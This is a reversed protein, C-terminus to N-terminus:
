ARARSPMSASIGRWNHSRPGRRRWLTIVFGDCAGTLGSVDIWESRMGSHLCLHRVLAALSMAGLRGTLWHGLRWNAGDSWIDSLEPFFPYPRADWTWAASEAVNIMHGAYEDSVPNNAPDGWYLYTAELYARQIADDRWGRSFYPM